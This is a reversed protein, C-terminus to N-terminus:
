SLRLGYTYPRGPLRISLHIALDSCVGNQRHDAPFSFSVSFKVFSVNPFRCAFLVHGSFLPWGSQLAVELLFCRPCHFTTLCAGFDLLWCWIRSCGVHVRLSTPRKEDVLATELTRRKSGVTNFAARFWVVPKMCGTWRGFLITLKQVGVRPLETSHFKRLVKTSVSFKLFHHIFCIDTFLTVAGVLFHPFTLWGNYVDM